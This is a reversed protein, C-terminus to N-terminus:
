CRHRRHSRAFHSALHWHRALVHSINHWAIVSINSRDGKDGTRSHAARYLPVTITDTM